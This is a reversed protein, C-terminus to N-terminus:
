YTKLTKKYGLINTVDKGVFWSEDNITLGRTKEFKKNEFIKLENM